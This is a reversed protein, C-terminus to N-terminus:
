EETEPEDILLEIEWPLATASWAELRSGLLLNTHMRVPRQVNTQDLRNRKQSHIWGEISWSHECGSTVRLSLMFTIHTENRGVTARAMSVLLHKVMGLLGDRM